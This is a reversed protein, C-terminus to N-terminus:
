SGVREGNSRWYAHGDKDIGIEELDRLRAILESISRADMTTAAKINQKDREAESM